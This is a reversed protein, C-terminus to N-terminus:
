LHITLSINNQQRYNQEKQFKNSIRRKAVINTQAHTQTNKDNEMYIKFPQTPTVKIQKRHM